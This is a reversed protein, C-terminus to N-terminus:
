LNGDYIATMMIQHPNQGQMGASQDVRTIKLSLRTFSHDFDSCFLLLSALGGDAWGVSRGDKQSGAVRSKLDQCEV